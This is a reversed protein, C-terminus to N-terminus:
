FNQWGGWSTTTSNTNTGTDHRVSMGRPTIFIHRVPPRHPAIEMKSVSEWISKVLKFLETKTPDNGNLDPHLERACQRYNKKARKQLEALRRRCEDMDPHSMCFQLDGDQIGLKAGAAAIEPTRFRVGVAYLGLTM